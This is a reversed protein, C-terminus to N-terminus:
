PNADTVANNTGGGAVPSSPTKSAEVDNGTANSDSNNGSPNQGHSTEETWV